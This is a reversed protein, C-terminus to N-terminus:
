LDEKLINQVAHTLDDWASLMRQCEARGQETTAYYKRAPGSTSARLESGLFGAKEMRTLAPYVTSENLDDFGADQLRTVVSYGYDTRRDLLLLLLPSLVGKLMQPDHPM